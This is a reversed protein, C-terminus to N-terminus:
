PQASAASELTKSHVEAGASGDAAVSPLAELHRGFYEVTAQPVEGMVTVHQGNVQSAFVNMAGMRSRGMFRVRQNRMPRLMVSVTALGDSFLLHEVPINSDAPMSMGRDVLKFGPPPSEIRWHSEGTMPMSDTADQRIWQYNVPDLAPQMEKDEIVSPFDVQTFMTQELVRGDQAVLDLRLPLSTADDVWIRYGYRYRDQPELRFIQCARDILRSDGERRVKYHPSLEETSFQRVSALVGRLDRRDLMVQKDKPLICTVVDEDRLIERPEAGLSQIREQERGNQFRHVVRLSRMEGQRAYVMVGRYNLTRVATSMEQLLDDNAAKADAGEVEGQAHVTQLTMLAILCFGYTLLRGSTLNSPRQTSM